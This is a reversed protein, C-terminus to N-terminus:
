TRADWQCKTTSMANQDLHVGGEFSQSSSLAKREAAYIGSITKPTQKVGTEVSSAQNCAQQCPKLWLDM